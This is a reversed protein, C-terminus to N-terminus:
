PTRVRVRYARNVDDPVLNTSAMGDAPVTIEQILPVFFEEPDGPAAQEIDYLLGRRAFWDLQTGGSPSLAAAAHFSSVGNTPDTGALAEEGDTQTDGDSDPNQVNTGYALEQSATLGDGDEDTGAYFYLPQNVGESLTYYGRGEGHWGVAEGQPESFEYPVQPPFLENLTDAISETATRSFYSIGIQFEEVFLELGSPAIDGAVAGFLTLSRVFQLESTAMNSLPYSAMYHRVPIDRKSIIHV